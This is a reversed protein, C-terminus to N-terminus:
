YGSEERNISRNRSFGEPYRDELKKINKQAITNIDMKLSTALASLYWLVDGLEKEIEERNLDHGHYVVKKLHDVVEGTEGALGMSFNSVNTNFWKDKPITRSAKLQYEYFNMLDVENLVAYKKHDNKARENYALAAKIESNFYGVKKLEGDVQIKTVWKGISDRKRKFYSVGKFKSTANSRKRANKNNQSKTVNRLNCKRNDLTDGNIHDTFLNYPTQAIVRHMFIIKRSGNSLRVNRRAYGGAFHWKYQNLEDFDNQDVIAFKGQTLEIRM